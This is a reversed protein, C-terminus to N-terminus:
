EAPEYTQQFIDPKCPYIEGAVGRIIWDHRDARMVGELTTIEIADSLFLIGGQEYANRLWEPLRDWEQNAYLLTQQVPVADIVVPKKRYKSM